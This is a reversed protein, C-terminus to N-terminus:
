NSSIAEASVISAWFMSRNTAPGRRVKRSRVIILRKILPSTTVRYVTMSSRDHLELATRVYSEAMTQDNPRGREGTLLDVKALEAPDPDAAGAALVAFRRDLCQSCCGCHTHLRTIDYIRTCSVTHKILAGCGHM